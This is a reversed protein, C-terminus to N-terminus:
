KRTGGIRRIFVQVKYDIKAKKFEEQWNKKLKEYLKNNHKKTFDGLKLYDVGVETQFYETTKNLEDEIYNEIKKSIAKITKVDSIDEDLLYNDIDTEIKVNM